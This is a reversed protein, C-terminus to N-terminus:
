DLRMLDPTVRMGTVWGECGAPVPGTRSYVCEGIGRKGVGGEEEGGREVLLAGGMGDFIANGKVVFRLL